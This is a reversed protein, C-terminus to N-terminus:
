LVAASMRMGSIRFAGTKSHWTGNIWTATNFYDGGKLTM